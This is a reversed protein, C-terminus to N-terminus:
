RVEVTFAEAFDEPRVSYPQTTVDVWQLWTAANLDLLLEVVSGELVTLNVAREVTLDEFEIDVEGTVTQGDIVVGRRVEVQVEDFVIRLARYVDTPVSARVVDAEVTGELDLEAQLEDRSLGVLVGGDSELYLRFRMRLSGEPDVEDDGDTTDHATRLPAAALISAAPVSADPADGNAVVRAEGFGGATLNGCGSLLWLTMLPLLGRALTARSRVPLDSISM